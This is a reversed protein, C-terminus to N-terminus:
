NTINLTFLEKLLVFYKNKVKKFNLFKFEVHNSVDQLLMPEKENNVTLSDKKILAGREGQPFFIEKRKLGEGPDM